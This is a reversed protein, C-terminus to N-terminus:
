VEGSIRRQQLHFLIRCHFWAPRKINVLILECLSGLSTQRSVEMTNQQVAGPPSFFILRPSLLRHYVTIIRLDVIPPKVSTCYESTTRLVFFRTGMEVVDPQLASEAQYSLEVTLSFPHHWVTTQSGLSSSVSPTRRMLRRVLSPATIEARTQNGAVSSVSLVPSSLRPVLNPATTETRTQNGAVSSVSLVPSSLRPVLNPATTETRTQNGAVSSVTLVPSSLRPM